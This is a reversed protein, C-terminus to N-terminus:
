NKLKTSRRMISHLGIEPMIKDIRSQEGMLVAQRLKNLQIEDHNLNYQGSTFAEVQESANYTVPQRFNLLYEPLTKKESPKKMQKM